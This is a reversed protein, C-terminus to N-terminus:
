PSSNPNNTIKSGSLNKFRVRTGPGIRCAAAKGGNVEVVYKAGFRSNINTEDRPRAFDHVHVVRLGSSIFIIDLPIYTNRMWFTRIEDKEFIFLMGANDGLSNRFMLGREQEEPTVAIEVKFSCAAEKGAEHFAVVGPGRPAAGCPVGTLALLIFGTLVPGWLARFAARGPRM